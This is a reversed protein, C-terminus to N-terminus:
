LKSLLKYNLKLFENMEDGMLRRFSLGALLYVQKAIDLASEKDESIKEKLKTITPCSLNVVLTSKTPAQYAEIGYMKMMDDFRRQSEDTSMMAPITDDKIKDFKVELDPTGSAEKFLDVLEADDECDEGSSLVQNIASDVRLFKLESGNQELMSIYQSDIVTPLFAVKIGEKTFKDIYQAQGTKDTTYYVTNKNDESTQNKYEEITMYTDDTLPLLVANKVKDNFKPDRLCGYEIFNHIDNWIKEYAPRDNNLLSTLKDAVKKSIHANIKAVYTNNQLYSRSVNLPLEPCDLVGYLMLMYEPVLEKLNDAVFVSNYFLKIQGELSEFESEIKPFYLIGKFNLPYDASIHVWFLPDKKGPFLKKYLAKYEDDTVESARKQWLPTTDNIPKLPAKETEEEKEKEEEEKDSDHIYIETPLFSCYKEAIKKVNYFDLYEANDDNIHMIVDTGRSDRTTETLTYSGDESCTWITAKDEKYSRSVVDVTDSAMFSSYFGLGFHGIIGSSDGNESDYKQIFDLAGSLAISCLYKEIEDATMGIGNDSVTLTKNVKSVKIDIRFKNDEPLEYEGLSSLRTIKTIADQANSVIERIFIDKESYLWKKIIPFIHETAVSIGGNKIESM